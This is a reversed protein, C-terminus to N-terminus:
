DFLNGLREFFYAIGTKPKMLTDTNEPQQTCACLSLVIALALAFSVIRKM